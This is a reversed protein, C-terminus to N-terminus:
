GRGFHDITKQEHASIRLYIYYLGIVCVPISIVIGTAIGALFKYDM